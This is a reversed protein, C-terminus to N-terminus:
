ESPMHYSVGIRRNKKWTGFLLTNDPCSDQTIGTNYEVTQYSKIDCWTTTHCTSLQFQLLYYQKIVKFKYQM